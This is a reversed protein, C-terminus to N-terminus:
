QLPNCKPPVHGRVFDIEEVLCVGYVECLARSRVPRLHWLVLPAGSASFLM